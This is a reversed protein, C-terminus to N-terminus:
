QGGRILGAAVIKADLKLTTIRDCTVYITNNDPM